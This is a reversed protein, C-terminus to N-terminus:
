QASREMCLMDNDTVPTPSQVTAQETANRKQPM